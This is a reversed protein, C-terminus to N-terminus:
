EPLLLWKTGEFRALRMTEIPYHDTPSTEIKSGPLLLPLALDLHEAQRMINERSLDDGCQKLVQVLTQAASYGYVNLVDGTNGQPYYKEMFARWAQMGADDRWMDDNPDKLYEMTIIGQAKEYGAPQIAQAISNGTTTLYFTPHWDLDFVKRIAMAAFKPVAHIYFTDAGSEKAAVIQQDITPDTPEYSGEYVIMQKARDGLAEKFSNLYDRGADDNHGMIAIRANPKTKLIHQAYLTSEAKYTPQWGMSWPWAKADGWFTAGAAIFLQPIHKGNLYKRVAMGTPTGLPQYIFAVKEQEILKRTQEVTKPPSYGDDLTLLTIKRGNIGGQENIAQFYAAEARAITAYSSAPGSLPMTQGIRIETASVGPADTKDAAAAGTTLMALALLAAPLGGAGWHAGRGDGRSRAM